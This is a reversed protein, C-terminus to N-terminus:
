GRNPTCGTFIELMRRANELMHHDNNFFVYVREPNQGLIEEATERLESPSYDYRYWSRRGHMRCYVTEGPFILHRADPSDVSVPLAMEAIEAMAERDRLVDPARLELAARPGIEARDFFAHLRELDHFGPPAQFLYFDILPDLATFRERFRRWIEFADSGFRHVHTISRHVKVCWRLAAGHEAWSRVYNQFPFRYFSSNLEVANLGSHSAYWTLNGGENWDYAWGSTGVLVEM